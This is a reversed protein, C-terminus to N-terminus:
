KVLFGTALFAIGALGFALAVFWYARRKTLVSIAGIAIAVQFMTLGRSLPVHERLHTRSEEELHKAEKQIDAKKDQYEKLKQEDELDVTIGLKESIKNQGRIVKEKISNAQFEAWKDSAQIQELTAETAFHEAYLATVAALAALIAASLAVGMIWPESAEHAHHEITEHANELPVEPMITRRRAKEVTETRWDPLIICSPSAGLGLQVM